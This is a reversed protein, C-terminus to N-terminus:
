VVKPKFVGTVNLLTVVIDIVQSVFKGITEVKVGLEPSFTSIAATVIALVADKKALCIIEITEREFADDFCSGRYRRLHSTYDLGNRGCEREDVRCDSSGDPARSEL